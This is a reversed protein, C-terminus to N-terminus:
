SGDLLRGLEADTIEVQYFLKYFDRVQQRLDGPAEGPYLKHLLWTLGILRNVSPPADIFGYPLNPALFVRGTAVAPVPQWAPKGSVDRKFGQDITIITDPAWALV